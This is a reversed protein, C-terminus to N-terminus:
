FHSLVMTRFNSLSERSDFLLPMIDNTKKEFSATISTFPLFVYRGDGPLAECHNCSRVVEPRRWETISYSLDHLEVFYDPFLRSAWVESCDLIWCSGLAVDLSM